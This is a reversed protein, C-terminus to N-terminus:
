IVSVYNADNPQPSQLCASLASAALALLARASCSEARRGPSQDNDRQREAHAFKSLWLVKESLHNADRPPDRVPVAKIRPSAACVFSPKVSTRYIPRSSGGHNTMTEAAPPMVELLVPIRGQQQEEKDGPPALPVAYM